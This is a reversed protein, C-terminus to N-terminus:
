RGVNRGEPPMTGVDVLMTKWCDPLPSDHEGQPAVDAAARGGGKVGMLKPEVLLGRSALWYARQTGGVAAPVHRLCWVDVDLHTCLTNM